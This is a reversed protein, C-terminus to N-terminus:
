AVGDVTKGPPGNPDTGGLNRLALAKRQAPAVSRNKLADWEVEAKGARMNQWREILELCAHDIFSLAGIHLHVEREAPIAELVSALRPLSVFTAAGYLAVHTPDGEKVEVELHTLHFLLRATALAFGTLVGTLLNTAVIMVVTTLYIALETRGVQWLSKMVGVNVLKYGTYVLIAALAATPILSLVSPFAAVLILIWLGHLIASGRTKAGAQM